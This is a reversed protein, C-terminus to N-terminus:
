AIRWGTSANIYVLNVTMNAVDITLNEALGMINAGNRAIITDTFNGVFITVNDGISPSAPLTITQAATDVFCEEGNVLTKSASTTTTNSVFASGAAALIRGSSTMTAVKTGLTAGNNTTVYFGLDYGFDNDVGNAKEAAIRTFAGADGAARYNGGLDISGGVGAAQATTDIGAFSNKGAKSSNIVGAVLLNGAGANVTTGVSLGGAASIRMRETLSNGDTNYFILNSALPSANGNVSSATIAGLLGQPFGGGGGFNGNDAAFVLESARGTFDVAGGFNATLKASGINNFAAANSIASMGSSIANSTAYGLTGTGLVQLPSIPSGTGIGLNGSADLTMAQTFSIANGATGSAATNWLFGTGPIAQFQLAGQSSAIYKWGSNFYANHQMAVSGTDAFHSGRSIQFAPTSWASPAVGLGLSGSGDIRMREAGANTHFMLNRSGDYSIGGDYADSNNANARSFAYWGLGTGVYNAIGGATGNGVVLNNANAHNNSPTSVGIGVNGSSDIALADTGAVNIKFGQGNGLTNGILKIPLYGDTRELWLEPSGGSKGVHLRASANPTVGIGVNGSSTFTVKPTTNANVYFKLNPSAGGDSGIDWYSSAGTNEIIRLASPLSASVTRSYASITATSSAGTGISITENASSWSFKATTGTDEYFSIDGGAAILLKSEGGVRFEHSGLGGSETDRADYIAGSDNQGGTNTTSITLGRNTTGTLTLHTSNAGNNLLTAGDVSLGDATVTGTVDIGTSTTALKAANDHYLNVAGNSNFTAMTEGASYLFVGGGNTTNLILSGDGADQVYSNFGDHYIQLDSGTGFNAKVNDGFNINGTLTGGSLPLKTGISNTVTTAFNPDDGLAAALENLTDLTLPASDVLNAVATTVYGETAFGAATLSSTDIKDATIANDEIVNTTIKTLAM